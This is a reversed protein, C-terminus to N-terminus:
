RKTESNSAALYGTASHVVRASPHRATLSVLKLNAPTAPLVKYVLWNEIFESSFGDAFASHTVERIPNDTGPELYVTGLTVHAGSDTSLPVARHAPVLKLAVRGDIKTRGALKYLHARLQQEFVSMRGSTDSPGYSFAVQTSSTSVTGKPQNKAFQRTAAAEWARQTTVYITNDSPDYLQLSDGTQVQQYGPRMDSSDIFTTQKKGTGSGASITTVTVTQATRQQVGNATLDTAIQMRTVEVVITGSNHAALLSTSLTCGSLLGAVLVVIM